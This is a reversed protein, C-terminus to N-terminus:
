QAPELVSHDAIWAWTRGQRVAIDTTRLTGTRAQGTEKNTRRATVVYQIIATDDNIHVALPQFSVLEDDFRRAEERMIAIREEKTEIENADLAWGKFDEHLCDAFRDLSKERLCGEEWALVARQEENWDQGVVPSAVAGAIVILMNRMM